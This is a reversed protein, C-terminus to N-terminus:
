PTKRLLLLRCPRYAFGVTNRAELIGLEHDRQNCSELRCAGGIGCRGGLLDTVSSRPIKAALYNRSASHSSLIGGSGGLDFFLVFLLIRIWSGFHRVVEFNGRFHM